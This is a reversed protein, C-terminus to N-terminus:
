SNDKAKVYFIYHGGKINNDVAVSLCNCKVLWNLYNKLKNFIKM